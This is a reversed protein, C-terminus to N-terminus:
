RISLRAPIKRWSRRWWPPMRRSMTWRAWPRPTPWGPPSGTRPGDFAVSARAEMQHDVEKQEAIFYRAGALAPAGGSMAFPRRVAAPGRWAPLGPRHARLVAYRCFRGSVCEGVAAQVPGFATIGDRTVLTMPIGQKKLFEAFGDRKVEAYLVPAQPKGDTGAAVAM